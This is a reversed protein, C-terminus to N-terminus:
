AIPSLSLSLTCKVEVVSRTTAQIWNEEVFLTHTTTARWNLPHIHAAETEDDGFASIRPITFTIRRWKKV